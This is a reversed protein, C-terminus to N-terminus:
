NTLHGEHGSHDMKMMEGDGSASKMVMAKVEITEGSRFSLTLPVMKGEALPKKASMLMLHLGGPKFAVTKGAPIEISEMRQMTAVGDVVKSLHIQVEGYNESTAGILEKTEKGHNTITLYAGHTKLTAPAMRVWADSITLGSEHASAVPGSLVAATSFIVALIFGHVKKGIFM